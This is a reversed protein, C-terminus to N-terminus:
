YNQWKINQEFLNFMNGLGNITFEELKDIRYLNTQRNHQQVMLNMKVKIIISEM